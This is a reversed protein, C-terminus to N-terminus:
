GGQQAVNKRFAFWARCFYQFEVHNFSHSPHVLYKSAIQVLGFWTPNM